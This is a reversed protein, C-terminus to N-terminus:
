DVSHEKPKFWGDICQGQVEHSERYLTAGTEPSKALGEFHMSSALPPMGPMLLAVLYGTLQRNM